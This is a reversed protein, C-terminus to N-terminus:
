FPLRFPIQTIFFSYPIAYVACLMRNPLITATVGCVIKYSIARKDGAALTTFGGGRLAAQVARQLCHRFQSDNASFCGFVIFKGYAVESFDRSNEKLKKCLQFIFRVKAGYNFFTFIMSVRQKLIGAHAVFIVHCRVIRLDAAPNIRPHTPPKNISFDVFDDIQL